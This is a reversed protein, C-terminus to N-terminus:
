KRLAKTMAGLTFDLTERPISKAFSGIAWGLAAPFSRSMSISEIQIYLGGDKEMYSWYNNQRWLYGHEDDTSLVREQPTGAQDIEAIHTSRSDTYGSAAGNGGDSGGHGFTVDYTIDLVATLIHKQRVRMTVQYHDGNHSLVHALLMQPSFTQPYAAYDKMVREFDAAHAGPVFATGRWHYLLAGPLKGIGTPTIQEVVPQGSRLLALDEHELTVCTSQHQQKLRAEVKAIYANYTATAAPSPEAAVPAAVALSLLLGVSLRLITPNRRMMNQVMDHSIRRILVRFRMQPHIFRAACIIAALPSAGLGRM